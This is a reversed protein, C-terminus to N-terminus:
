HTFPVFCSIIKHIYNLPSTSNAFLDLSIPLAGAANPGMLIRILKTLNQFEEHAMVLM